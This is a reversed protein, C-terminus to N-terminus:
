TIADPNHKQPTVYLPYNRKSSFRGMAIYLPLNSFKVNTRRASTVSSMVAKLSSSKKKVARRPEPLHVAIIVATNIHETHIDIYM